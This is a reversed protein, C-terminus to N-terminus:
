CVTCSCVCNLVCYMFVCLEACMCVYVYRAGTVRAAFAAQEKSAPTEVGTCGGLYINSSM